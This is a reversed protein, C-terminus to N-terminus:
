EPATRVRPRTARRPREPAEAEGGGEDERALLREIVVAAAAAVPLALLAGVFGGAAAGVLVTILVILPSLGITNRMVLPVLINGEIIQVIAYVVAVAVVLQPSITSAVLLAPIAGLVPGVIPIAEALAALVGLLLASPLGLIAYATGAGVGMTGMLILQGRVWRGLRDEIESWAERAEARRDAPVVALLSRELRSHELLWFAVITLLTMLGALAEAVSLGAQVVVDPDPPPPSTLAEARDIVATLSSSLTPPGLTAAWDRAQDFFSPLARAIEASQEIAAPVIVLALGLVVLFMGAFVVLISAGRNIPLRSRIGDVLPEIGSALLIALFVLVLVPGAAVALVLVLVTFAVGAALSAGRRFWTVAESRV